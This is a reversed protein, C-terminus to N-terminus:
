SFSPRGHTSIEKQLDRVAAATSDHDWVASIVAAGSAGNKFVSAINSLSIGGIAIIPISVALRCEILRQLGALETKEKSSTQFVAGFGIYDAGGKEADVAQDVNHTSVGIIKKPGLIKRTLALPFDEQGIHVGDADSAMALDIDDNILYRSQHRLCLDRLKLSIGLADKKSFQKNRFQILRIGGALADEVRRFFQDPHDIRPPTILCIKHQESLKL